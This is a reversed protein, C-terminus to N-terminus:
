FIYSISVYFLFIISIYVGSQHMSINTQTWIDSELPFYEQFSLPLEFQLRMNSSFNQLRWLPMSVANFANELM